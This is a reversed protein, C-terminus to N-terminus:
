TVSARREMGGVVNIFSCLLIYTFGAGETIHVEPQPLEDM